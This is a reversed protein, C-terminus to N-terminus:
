IYLERCEEIVQEMPCYPCKFRSTGRPLRMISQKSLVHGCPLIMPVNNGDSAEEKSVPCTFISHFSCERGIDIEVPLADDMGLEHLYSAVRTAKLLTPIAKTGCRVVTLLLSDMTLGQARCYERSLCREIDDRRSPHVLSKYPSQNLSNAYLLCTMLKQVHGICQPFASLHKQAYQLAQDRTGSKHLIQLYALCHLRFQLNTSSNQKLFEDNERTWEIALQLNDNRFATLINYLQEFPKKSTEQFQVGSERLFTRGVDFMGERFLHSAIADNIKSSPLRVGPACLEGLNTETASDISKGFKKIATGVSKHDSVLTSQLSKSKTLITDLLKFIEGDNSTRITQEQKHQSTSPQRDSIFKQEDQGSDNENDNDNDNNEKDDIQMSDDDDHNGSTPAAATTPQADTLNKTTPLPLQLSPSINSEIGDKQALIDSVQSLLQLMEDVAQEASRVSKQHRRCM